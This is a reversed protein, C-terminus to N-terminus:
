EKVADLMTWKIQGNTVEYKLIAWGGVHGDGLGAVVWHRNILWPYFRLRGGAIGPFPILDTRQELNSLLDSVPAKLGRAQMDSIYVDPLIVIPRAQAKELENQLSSLESQLRHNESRLRAVESASQAQQARLTTESQSRAMAEDETSRWQWALFLSVVALLGAACTPEERDHTM